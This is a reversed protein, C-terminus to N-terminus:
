KTFIDLASRYDTLREAQSQSSIILPCLPDLNLSFLTPPRVSNELGATVPKDIIRLSPEFMLMFHIWKKKKEEFVAKLVIKGSEGKGDSQSIKNQLGWTM